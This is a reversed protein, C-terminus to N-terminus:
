FAPIYITVRAWINGAYNELSSDEAIIEGGQANAIAGTCAIGTAIGATIQAGTPATIAKWAEYNTRTPVTAFPWSAGGDSLYDFFSTPNNAIYYVQGRYIPIASATAYTQGTGVMFYDRHVRATFKRPIRLRGALSGSILGTTPDPMYGSYGIPSYTYTQSDDWAPPIQYYSRTWSVLEGGEDRLESENQLYAAADDPSSTNLATAAFNSRNQQYDQYFAYCSASLRPIPFFKRITGRKSAAAM